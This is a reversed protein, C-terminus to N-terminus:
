KVKPRTIFETVVSMFMEHTDEIQAAHDAGPLVVYSRSPTGAAVM